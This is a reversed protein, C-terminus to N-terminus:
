ISVVSIVVDRRAHCCVKFLLWKNYLLHSIHVTDVHSTKKGHDFKSYLLLAM